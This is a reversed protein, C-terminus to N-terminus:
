NYISQHFTQFTFFTCVIRRVLVAYEYVKVDKSVQLFHNFVELFFLPVLWFLKEHEFVTYFILFPFYLCM